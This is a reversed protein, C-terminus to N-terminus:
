DFLRCHFLFIWHPCEQPRISGKNSSNPAYKRKIQYSFTTGVGRKIASWVQRCCSRSLGSMSRFYIFLSLAWHFSGLNVVKTHLPHLCLYVLCALEREVIYITISSEPQARSGTDPTAVARNFVGLVCSLFLCFHCLKSMHRLCMWFWLKEQDLVCFYCLQISM